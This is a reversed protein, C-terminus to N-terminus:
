QSNIIKGDVIKSKLFCRPENIDLDIGRIYRTDESLVKVNRWNCKGTNPNNYVFNITSHLDVTKSEKTNVEDAVISDKMVTDDDSQNKKLGIAAELAENLSEAVVKITETATWYVPVKYTKM